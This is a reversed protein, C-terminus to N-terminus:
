GLKLSSLKVSRVPYPTRLRLHGDVFSLAISDSITREVFMSRLSSKRAFNVLRKGTAEEGFTPHLNVGSSRDLFSFFSNWIENFGCHQLIWLERLALLIACIAVAERLLFDIWCKVMACCVLNLANRVACAFTSIGRKSVGSFCDFWKAMACLPFSKIWKTTGTISPIGCVVAACFCNFWKAM